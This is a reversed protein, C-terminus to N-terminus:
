EEKLLDKIYTAAGKIEEEKYSKILAENESPAQKEQSVKEVGEEVGGHGDDLFAMFLLWRILYAFLYFIIFAMSAKILSLYMNALSFSNIIFILFGTLGFVINIWFTGIM